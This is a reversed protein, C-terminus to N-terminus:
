FLDGQLSLFPTSPFLHSLFLPHVLFVSCYVYWVFICLPLCLPLLGSINMYLSLYQSKHSFNVGVRKGGEGDYM